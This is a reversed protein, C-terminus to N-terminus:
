GFFLSILSPLRGTGKCTHISPEFVPNLNWLLIILTPSPMTTIGDMIIAVVQNSYPITKQDYRNIPPSSPSSVEISTWRTHEATDGGFKWRSRSCRYKYSNLTSFNTSEYKRPYRPSISGPFFFTLFKEYVKKKCTCHQTLTLAELKWTRIRQLPPAIAKPLKIRKKPQGLEHSKQM